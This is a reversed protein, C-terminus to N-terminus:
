DIFEVIEINLEIEEQDILYKVSILEENSYLKILEIDFTLNGEKTFISMNKDNFDIRLEKEKDKKILRNIKKDFIITEEDKRYSIIDKNLFAIGEYYYPNDNNKIETIIKIKKM